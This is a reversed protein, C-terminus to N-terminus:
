KAEETVPQGGLGFAEHLVRVALEAYKAEIVCSVKIESTSIMMINIKEKGLAEFMRAAVGSHTRMGVGVISVKATKDDGIVKDAGMEKAVAKVIEMTKAYDARPVTFSIDTFGDQSINQVIMDVVINAEAVRGFLAAAIGPRDAVRTVTIKAEQKNYAIGSVVVKEMAADEKVVMTGPNYNFSSRVHVPVGYNKAYEVSRTQLVKAGLSAMELMEDYSIRDLKRAEPVINPDTTYVGNVDTYIECVDAAVAAAMAVATLDSGGRGLTTIEEEASVGQFGAVIAVEGDTLAQRVREADISLIRAKTHADDTQIRVQSGTFSRARFGLAQIAMSLLGISVQEGTALIVDLEREDPQESIKHALSILRDTEGAMASVVVVVDHGAARAETVRRAVNTIRDVDGVSTGGYKQVILAM